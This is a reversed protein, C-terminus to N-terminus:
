VLVKSGDEVGDDLFVVSDGGVGLVSRVHVNSLDLAIYSLIDWDVGASDTNAAGNISEAKRRSDGLFLTNSNLLEHDAGDLVEGLVKSSVIVWESSHLFRNALLKDIVVEQKHRSVSVQGNSTHFTVPGFTTTDEVIVLLGEEDPDVLFILETDDGHLLTSIDSSDKFSKGLTDLSDL